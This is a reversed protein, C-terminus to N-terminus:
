PLLNERVSAYNAQEIIESFFSSTRSTYTSGAVVKSLIFHFLLWGVGMGGFDLIFGRNSKHPPSIKWKNQGCSQNRTHWAIRRLNCIIFGFQTVCLQTFQRKCDM